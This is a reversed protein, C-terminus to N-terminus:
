RPFSVTWFNESEAEGVSNELRHPIAAVHVVHLHRDGFFQAHLQAASIVFVGARQAVHHGVVDKLQDRQSRSPAASKTRHRRPERRASSLNQARNLRETGLAHQIMGHAALVALAYISPM